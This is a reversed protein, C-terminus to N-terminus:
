HYLVQRGILLYSLCTQDIPRSSGRSFPIAVWELIRAQLIWHVSSGSLSCDVPDWLTLGLQLSKALMCACNRFTFCVGIRWRNRM